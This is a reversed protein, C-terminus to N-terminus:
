QGKIARRERISLAPTSTLLKTGTVNSSITSFLLENMARWESSALCFGREINQRSVHHNTAYPRFYLRLLLRKGGLGTIGAGGGASKVVDGAPGFVKLTWLRGCGWRSEEGTCRLTDYDVKDEGDSPTIIILSSRSESYQRPNPGNLLTRTGRM